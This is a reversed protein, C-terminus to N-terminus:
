AIARDMARIAAIKQDHSSHAYTDLTMKTSSHGLLQSVAMIDANTELCRTAFTHRLQHFHITSLGAKERIQHFHYTLLRPECPRGNTTFVFEEDNTQNQKLNLLLAKISKSMPIIRQAAQTKATGLTLETKNGGILVRQYTNNVHILGNDFDVEEWKLAAIEGIRMGTGMALAVSQARADEQADVVKQLRKQEKLTLAQVQKKDAKPLPMGICPNKDLIEETVAQDLIQKLLRFVVRMSSWSLGRLRWAEIAIAIERDDIQYLSLKGLHEWLYEGLKHQYSAYTAPKLTSKKEEVWHESWDKFAMISKGYLRMMIEASKKLPELKQKVEDYTDGYISGYILKGKANRGKHYRGEWREDSRLYICEGTRAM